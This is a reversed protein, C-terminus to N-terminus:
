FVLQCPGPLTKVMLYVEYRPPNNAENPIRSIHPCIKRFLQYRQPAYDPIIPLCVNLACPAEVARMSIFSNAKRNMLSTHKM